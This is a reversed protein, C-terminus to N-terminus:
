GGAAPAKLPASGRKQPPPLINLRLAEKALDSYINGVMTAQTIFDQYARKIFDSQLQVAEDVKKVGAL